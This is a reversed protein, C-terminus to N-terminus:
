QDQVSQSEIMFSMIFSVLCLGVFLWPLILFMRATLFNVEADSYGQLLLAFGVGAVFLMCLVIPFYSHVWWCRVATIAMLIAALLIAILPLGDVIQQTGVSLASLALAVGGASLLGALVGFVTQSLPLMRKNEIM